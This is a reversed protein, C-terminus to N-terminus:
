LTFGKELLYLKLGIRARYLLTNTKSERIGLHKSIDRVKHFYYYRGIFAIRSEQPLTRVYDSIAAALEQTIIMDEPTDNGGICDELESFVTERQGGGRKKRSYFELRTLSLNRTIKGLWISLKNPRQPPIANWARLWTDSVCEEADENNSLINYAITHCYRGYKKNTEEIAKQDRDFYLAVIMQDDM